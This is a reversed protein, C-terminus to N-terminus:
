AVALITPFSVSMDHLIISSLKSHNQTKQITRIKWMILILCFYSRIRVCYSLCSGHLTLLTKHTHSQQSTPSRLKASSQMVTNHPTTEATHSKRPHTETPYNFLQGACITDVLTQTRQTNGFYCTFILLSLNLYVSRSIIHQKKQVLMHLIM